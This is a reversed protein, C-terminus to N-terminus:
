MVKPCHQTSFYLQYGKGYTQIEMMQPTILPHPAMGTHQLAQEKHLPLKSKVTPLPKKKSQRPDHM